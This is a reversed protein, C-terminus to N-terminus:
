PRSRTLKYELPGIATLRIKNSLDTEARVPPVPCVQASDLGREHLTIEIDVEKRGHHYTATLQLAEFLRRLEAPPLEPLREAILPLKELLGAVDAFRPRRLRRTPPLSTGCGTNRSWLLM